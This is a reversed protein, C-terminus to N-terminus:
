IDITDAFCNPCLGGTREYTSASVRIGCKSCFLTKQNRSSLIKQLAKMSIGYHRRLATMVEPYAYDKDNHELWHLGSTLKEFDTRILASRIYDTDLLCMDNMQTLVAQDIGYLEAAKEIDRPRLTYKSKEM